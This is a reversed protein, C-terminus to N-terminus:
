DKTSCSASVTENTAAVPLVDKVSETEAIVNPVFENLGLGANAVAVEQAETGIVTERGHHNLVARRHRQQNGVAFENREV